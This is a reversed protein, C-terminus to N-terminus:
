NEKLYDYTLWLGILYKTGKSNNAYTTIVKGVKNLVVVANKGIYKLKGGSQTVIKLFHRTANQMAKASVGVGDHGLASNLGHQTFGKIKGTIQWISIVM